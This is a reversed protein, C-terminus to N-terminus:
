MKKHKKRWSFDMDFDFGDLVEGDSILVLVVFTVLILAGFSAYAIDRLVPREERGLNVGYVALYMISVLAGFLVANRQFGVPWLGRVFSLGAMGAALLVAAWLIPKKGRPFRWLLVVVITLLGICPLLGLLLAGVDPEYATHIYLAAVSFGNAVSNLLYCLSWLVPSSRGPRRREAAGNVCVATIMLAAAVGLTLWKSGILIAQSAVLLMIVMAACALFLVVLIRGTKQKM